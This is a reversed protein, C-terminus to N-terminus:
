NASPPELHDIVVVQVPAKQPELKLGLQEQLATVLGPADSDPHAPDAGKADAGMTMSPPTWTLYFDYKGTLGTKDIIIRGEAEGQGSLMAALQKMTGASVTMEAKDSSIRMMTGGQPAHRPLPDSFSPPKAEPAPEANTAPPPPPAAPQLKPGGKAVVRAYVPLERSEVHMKLQFRDRLMAQVMLAMRRGQDDRPMAKLKAVDNADMKALVDYSKNLLAEPGGIVQADSRAGYANRIMLSLSVNEMRYGDPMWMIRMGRADAAAPKVTAVDFTPLAEGNEPLTLQPWLPLACLFILGVVIAVARCKAMRPIQM